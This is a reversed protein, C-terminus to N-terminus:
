SLFAIINKARNQWTYKQADRHAQAAIKKGFDPNSLVMRIGKALSEPSGPEVLVANHENLVDGISPLKTAIIPRQAAMYEFMKLPSMYYAFHQNFPFPMLLLDFAKQYKALDAQSIRSLLKVRDGRGENQILASYDKLENESGGVAVFLIQPYDLLLIKLAKLIEPLGKEMNKTRFTGTYGLITSDVPLMLEQRAQEKSLSIDFVELDVADPSVLIKNAPIGSQVLDQKLTQTLVVIRHCRSFYKQYYRRNKPLAHSEWVVRDSFFDLVLLLVEDRTYFIEGGEHKRFSLYFFLSAIFCFSQVKIYIGAPFRLLWWPDFSWIKKIRFSERIGYYAFPSIKKLEPNRRSPVILEVDKGLSRFAECTKAIQQGHAKETPWRINAVYIIKM